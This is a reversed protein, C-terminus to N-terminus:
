PAITAATIAALSRSELARRDLGATALDTLDFAGCDHGRVFFALAAQATAADDFAQGVRTARAGTALFKALREGLADRHRLFHAYLAGYRAPLQAPHLDWGQWIGLDIARTVADAHLRWARHVAARQDELTCGEPALPLTTTAGDALPIPTALRVLMRALDCYPHDLRQDGATVGLEATLDYAGLHLAVARGRAAVVLPAVAVRGHPDLLAAPTEIMLEVRVSQSALGLTQEAAELLDVLAAVEDPSAVKPLTVTFGSPPAGLEGLFLDLTRVSRRFTAAGLSKIRIGVLVDQKEIDAAASALAAAARRAEADEEDDSRAGFGDEFDICIAEIPRAGLKNRVRAAVRAGLAPDDVGVARAFTSDDAGWREMSARAIAGLKEPANPQFRHAGGYLV